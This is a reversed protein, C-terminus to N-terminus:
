LTNKYCFRKSFCECFDCTCLVSEARVGSSKATKRKLKQVFFHSSLFKWFRSFRGSWRLRTLCTIRSVLMGAPFVIHMREYKDSMCTRKVKWIRFYVSEILFLSLWRRFFLDQVLFMRLAELLCTHKKVWSSCCKEDWFKDTTPIALKFLFFM